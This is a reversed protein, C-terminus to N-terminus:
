LMTRYRLGQRPDFLSSCYCIFLSPASAFRTLFLRVQGDPDEAFDIVTRTYCRCIGDDVRSCCGRWSVVVVIADSAEELGAM